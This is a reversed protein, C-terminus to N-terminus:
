FTLKFINYYDSYYWYINGDVIQYCVGENESMTVGTMDVTTKVDGTGADIVVLKSNHPNSTNATGIYINGQYYKRGQTTGIYPCETKNGIQTPTYTGDENETLRNLDWKTLIMSNTGSYNKDSDKRYGFGYLVNNDADLAPSIHYGYDPTPISITKVVDAGWVGDVLQIRVVSTKSHEGGLYLLPFADGDAYFEKSFQMANGKYNELPLEAVLEMTDLAYVRIQKVVSFSVFLYNGYIDIDQSTMGTYTMTMIKESDYHHVKSPIKEGVYQFTTPQKTGKLFENYLETINKSVQSIEGQIIIETTINEMSCYRAVTEGNTFALVIDRKNGYAYGELMWGTASIVEKNKNYFHLVPCPNDGFNSGDATKVTIKAGAELYIPYLTANETIHVTSVYDRLM